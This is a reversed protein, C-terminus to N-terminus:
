SKEELMGILAKRFRDRDFPRFPKPRHRPRRGRELATLTRYRQDLLRAINDRTYEHGRPSLARADKDLVLAALPTDNTVIIDGPRTMNSIKYDAEDPTDDVEVVDVGPLRPMEHHFNAILIVKIFRPAAIEIIDDKVPCADADVLIRM